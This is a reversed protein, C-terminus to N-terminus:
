VEVRWGAFYSVVLLKQMMHVTTVRCQEQLWGWLHTPYRGRQRRLTLEGDVLLQRDQRQFTQWLLHDLFIFAMLYGLHRRSRQCIHNVHLKM